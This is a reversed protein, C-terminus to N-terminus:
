KSHAKAKLKMPSSSLKNSLWHSLKINKSGKLTKVHKEKKVPKEKKVHKV